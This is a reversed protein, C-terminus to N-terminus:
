IIVANREASSVQGRNVFGHAKALRNAEDNGGQVEVVWSNSYDNLPELSYVSCLLLCTTALTFVEM